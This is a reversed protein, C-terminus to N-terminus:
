ALEKAAVVRTTYSGRLCSRIFEADRPSKYPKAAGRGIFWIYQKYNPCWGYYQLQPKGNAVRERVIVWPGHENNMAETIETIEAQLAKIKAHREDIDTFYQELTM